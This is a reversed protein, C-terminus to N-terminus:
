KDAEGMVPDISGIIAVIDAIMSGEAMYTLGQLNSSSPSRIKLKWPNGTGDSVIFFGLEGKPSEIATYTEGVLPLGGYNIIMFDNIMDEMKTYVTAKKPLVHFPDEARVLGRPLKDLCQHIIKISEEMEKIRVMYRGLTDGDNHTIVDFDLQDYILYPEDRRLDRGIGSGRLCPGTLGLAIAKDPPMYGVGALRDIFIRNRHVVQGFYKLEHPFANAWDRIMKLTDSDIDNAVGGIRSYSTTFRAGCIREFIDYLKERETFSWLFITLAGVDMCTAGMAMLHSSVRALECILVRIWAARDPIDLGIANEIALTIAVNNSMPSMYDLRDTHAIFEHYTCNEALKEYGRHLYGLEPVCKVITEGDLRLLVRLVGHTAPHQPGMNLVMENELPDDFMVITDKDMLEHVIKAQRIHQVRELSASQPNDIM